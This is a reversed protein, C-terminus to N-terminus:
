QVGLLKEYLAETREANNEVGFLKQARRRGAEGMAIAANNDRLLALVAGALALPNAPPVLKGTIGEEVVELLGGVRTAVVPKGCAMAEAVVRGFGESVSSLAFVDMATLIEPIDRRHGTFTVSSAIGLDEAQVKLAEMNEGDGVILFHSDPLILKIKQAAQLFYKHAKYWDLRGVMGILATKEDVGFEGRLGSRGATDKCAFLNIGNYVVQVKEQDKLWKFRRKVAKSNVIVLAAMAALLRDLLMDSELIRVHWIMPVKTLICALGGYVACRSGNAHVLSIEKGRILRVLRLVSSFLFFPNVWKLSPMPIIAVEIGLKKVEDVLSGEAPCVAVPTFRAPDLNSILGLFSFEGGGVLDGFSSIYLVNYKKM